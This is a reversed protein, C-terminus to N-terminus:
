RQWLADQVAFLNPATWGIPTFKLSYLVTRKQLRSLHMKLSEKQIFMLAWDEESYKWWSTITGPNFIMIPITLLKIENTKM